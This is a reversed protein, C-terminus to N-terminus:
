CTCCSPTDLCVRAVQNSLWSMISTKMAVAKPNRIQLNRPSLMLCSCIVSEVTGVHKFSAESYYILNQSDKINASIFVVSLAIVLQWM